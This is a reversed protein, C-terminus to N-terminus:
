RAKKCWVQGTMLSVGDKYIAIKQEKGVNTANKFLNVWGFRNGDDLM